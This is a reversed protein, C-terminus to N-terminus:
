RGEMWRVIKEVVPGADRSGEKFPEVDDSEVLVVIALREPFGHDKIKGLWEKRLENVDLRDDDGGGADSHSANRAPEEDEGGLGLDVNVDGKELDIQPEVIATLWAHTKRYGKENSGGFEATGTKCAMVGQKLQQEVRIDLEGESGGLINAKITSNRGFLPFATGGSSCAGIMGELVLSLHDVNIGVERCDMQDKKILHPICMTGQNGLAQALQSLQIPSVLIDGQGIGFHYTNGLFWKEGIVREKWEPDPVLGEAEPSLEIGTRQGFGMLRAAEALRQPGVWEAVKYFFIDNSRAIARLLSIEGETRGYQRFYWNGYEYEGVKLVGEDLVTTGQTIKEDALGALATVMKFVSGPPYAGSVARNFFRKQDDNFWTKIQEQQIKKQDYDSVQSVFVNADFGPTTVLSLVEGSETDTVIVAGKQEGMVLESVLAVYPDLTTELDRGSLSPTDKIKRRKKALADIEYVEQGNKGKLHDEFIKELGLKGVKQSMLITRDDTMEQVSVQGVYGVVQSLIPVSYYRQYSLAVGASDSAMRVLAQDRDILTQTSYLVETDDVRYYLRWNEALPDSYRDLIAGRPAVVPLSYFRNEEAQFLFQKGRIIQLDFM